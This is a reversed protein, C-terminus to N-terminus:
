YHFYWRVFKKLNGKQILRYCLWVGLSQPISVGYNGLPKLYKNRNVEPMYKKVTQEVFDCIQSIVEESSKRGEIDFYYHQKNAKFIFYTFFSLVTYEYLDYDAVKDKHLKIFQMVNEIECLPLKALNIKKTTTSGIHVTQYYGIYDVIKLNRALALCKINFPNDEYIKGEAFCLNYKELFDKRYLKGSFNLRRLCCNGNRDTKYRIKNVTQGQETIRIEGSVVMDSEYLFATEVLVNIYDSTIYDDIDIFAIYEGRAYLMACNRAASQGKNEQSLITFINPHRDRWTKLLHFSEDTSGDNVAIIELNAYTQDIISQFCRDIYKDANYVPIIISVLGKNPVELQEGSSTASISKTKKIERPYNRM